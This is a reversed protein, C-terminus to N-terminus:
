EKASDIDHSHPNASAGASQADDPQRWPWPTAYSMDVKYGADALASLSISDTYESGGYSMLEDKVHESSWHPGEIPVGPLAPDGGGARFAEVARAGTFYKGDDSVLGPQSVQEYPWLVLGLIHGIEHKAVLTQHAFTNEVTYVGGAPMLAVPGAADRFCTAASGVGGIDDGSRAWIVLEDALAELNGEFRDCDTQRDPWETEALVASWWDAAETVAEEFGIPAPQDMVVDIGFQGSAARVVVGAIARDEGGSPTLTVDATGRGRPALRLWRGEITADVITSDSVSLSAQRLDSPLALSLGNGDERMLARPLLRAGNDTPCPLLTTNREIMWSRLGSDAPVCLGANWGLGLHWVQALNALETPLSGSFNNNALDLWLLNSLKGLEPPIAGSLNNNGIVLEKLKTLNGLEPPIPGSLENLDLNLVQLETLNGLSPPIQGKLGHEVWRQGEPDWVGSLELRIVRGNADVEVGYWEGLPADTLWKENNVWNPGDTAEYLAVLVSRDDQAYLGSAATSLIAPPLAAFVTGSQPLSIASVDGDCNLRATGGSFSVPVTFLEDLFRMASARGPIEVSGTQSATNGSGSFEVTCSAETEATNNLVLALRGLEPVVPFLFGNAPQAGSAAAMGAPHGAAELTFVNQAAVPGDCDVTAYGFTASHVGASPLSAQDGKAGLELAIGSITAAAGAPADFRSANLGAGRLGITCQNATEALNTLILQSRFGGGDLILPLIHSSKAGEDELDIAPMATFIHGNLPLGLIAVDRNCSLRAAGASLDDPIPILEGLMQLATSKAPVTVNGGGISAGAEDELEVACIADLGTDSSFVMALQGLRPLVPFQFANGPSASELTTMSVPASGSTLALLMRATVPEACDLTAYGFTLARAGTSALTIIEGAEALDITANAGSPAVADNARFIGPDLDPGRLALSCQNAADSVNTVFLWSQFGGGDAILPFFHERGASDDPSQGLIPPAGIGVLASLAGALLTKHM